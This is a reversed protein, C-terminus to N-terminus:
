IDELKILLDYFESSSLSLRKTEGLALSIQNQNDQMILDVSNDSTTTLTITYTEYTNSTKRSFQISDGVLLGRTLGQSALQASFTYTSSSLGITGFSTGEELASVFCISSLFLLFAVLVISKSFLKNRKKEKM